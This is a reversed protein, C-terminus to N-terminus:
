ERFYKTELKKFGRKEYDISPSNEMLSTYVSGVRKEDLMKQAEKNFEIWLRGGLSTNRYKPKVWWALEHLEYSKPCWINDIIIAILMGKFDNDILVFGKVKIIAFLLNTVYEENHLEKNKYIEIPIEKSYERILHILNPIDYKTAKRIL